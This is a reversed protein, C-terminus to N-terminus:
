VNVNRLVGWKREFRDQKGSVEAIKRETEVEQKITNMFHTVNPTADNCRSRYIVIKALTVLYTERTDAGTPFLWTKPDLRM